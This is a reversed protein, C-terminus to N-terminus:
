HHTVKGSTCISNLKTYITYEIDSSYKEFYQNIYRLCVPKGKILVAKFIYNASKDVYIYNITTDM